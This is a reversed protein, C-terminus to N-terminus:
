EININEWGDKLWGSHLGSIIVSTRSSIHVANEGDDQSITIM